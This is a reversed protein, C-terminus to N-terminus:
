LATCMNDSVYCPVVCELHKQRLLRLLLIDRYLNLVNISTAGRKKVAVRESVGDPRRGLLAGWGSGAGGGGSPVRDDAKHNLGDRLDISKVQSWRAVQTLDVYSHFLPGAQRPYM